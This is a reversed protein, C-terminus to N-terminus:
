SACQGVPKERQRLPETPDKDAQRDPQDLRDDQLANNTRKSSGREGHRTNRHCGPPHSHQSRRKAPCGASRISTTEKAVRMLSIRGTDWHQNQASSPSPFKPRDILLM